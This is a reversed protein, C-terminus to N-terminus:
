RSQRPQHRFWPVGKYWLRLAEWHIGLYVKIGLMPCSIFYRALHGATLSRRQATYSATIVLGDADSARIVVVQREAPLNLRFEYHMGM